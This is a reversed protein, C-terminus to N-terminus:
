AIEELRCKVEAPKKVHKEEDRFIINEVEEKDKKAKGHVEEYDEDGESLAIAQDLAEIAEKGDGMHRLSKWLKYYFHPNSPEMMSACLYARAARRYHGLEFESDGIYPWCEERRKDLYAITYFTVASKEFDGSKYFDLSRSFFEEMDKKREELKKKPGLLMYIQKGEALSQSYNEQELQNWSWPADKSIRM